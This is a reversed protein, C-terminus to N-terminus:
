FNNNERIKIEIDYKIRMLDNGIGISKLQEHTMGYGRNAKYSGYMLMDIIQLPTKNGKNTKIKDM